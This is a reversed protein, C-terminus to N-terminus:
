IRSRCSAARQRRCPSPLFRPATLAQAVLPWGPCPGSPGPPRTLVKAVRWHVAVCRDATSHAGPCRRPRQLRAAITRAASPPCCTLLPVATWRAANLPAAAARRAAETARPECPWLKETTSSHKAQEAGPPGGRRAQRMHILWVCRGTRNACRHLMSAQQRAGWRYSCSPLWPAASM